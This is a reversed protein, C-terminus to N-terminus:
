DFMLEKMLKKNQIIIKDHIMSILEPHNKKWFSEVEMNRIYKYKYDIRTSILTFISLPIDLLHDICYSLTVQICHNSAYDNVVELISKIESPLLNSYEIYYIIDEIISKGLKALKNSFVYRLFESKQGFVDHSSIYRGLMNGSLKFNPITKIMYEFVTMSNNCITAWIDSYWFKINFEETIYKVMELNNSACALQLLTKYSYCETKISDDNMFELFSDITGAFCCAERIYECVDEAHYRKLQYEICNDGSGSQTRAILAMAVKNNSMCVSYELAKVLWKKEIVYTDIIINMYDIKSGFVCISFAQLLGKAHVMNKIVDTHRTYENTLSCSMKFSVLDYWDLHRQMYVLLSEHLGFM